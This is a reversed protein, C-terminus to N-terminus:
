RSPFDLNTTTLAAAFISRPDNGVPYTGILMFHGIGDGKLIKVTKDSNCVVAVDLKGDNNFDGTALCIPGGLVPTDFQAAVGGSGNGTLVSVSNTTFNASVLDLNGSSTFHGNSVCKPGYGAGLYFDTKTPFRGTADGFLVTVSDIGFSTVYLDQNGDVKPRFGDGPNNCVACRPSSGPTLAVNFITTFNWWTHSGTGLLITVIDDSQNPVALDRKGNGDFDGMAISTPNHGVPFSLAPQFTGDGNGLLINVNNGLFNAEAIDEFGDNNYDTLCLAGGGGAGTNARSEISSHIKRPSRRIEVFIPATLAL